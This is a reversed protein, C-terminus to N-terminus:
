GPLLQPLQQITPTPPTQLAQLGRILAALEEPTLPDSYALESAGATKAATPAAIRGEELVAMAAKITLDPKQGHLLHVLTSIAHPAYKAAVLQSQTKAMELRFRVARRWAQTRIIQPDAGEPAEQFIASVEVGNALDDVIRDCTERQNM